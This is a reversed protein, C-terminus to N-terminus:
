VPENCCCFKIFTPFSQYHKSKVTTVFDLYMLKLQTKGHAALGDLGDFISQVLGTPHSNFLFISDKILVFSISVSFPVHKRVRDTADTDHYKDEQM